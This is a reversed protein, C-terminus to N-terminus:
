VSRKIWDSLIGTAVGVNLSEAMGAGPIAIRHNAAEILEPSLGQSENGMMLIGSAGAQHGRITEGGLVAAYREIGLADSEQILVHAAMTMPSISLMAGMSAQIVKQNYPDVSGPSCIVQMDGYWDAIRLITGLNGPDQIRDLYISWGKSMEPAEEESKRVIAIAGNPHKLEALRRLMDDSVVEHECTIQEAYIECWQASAMIKEIEAGRRIAERVSKDGEM